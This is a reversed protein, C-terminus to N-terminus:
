KKFGFICLFNFKSVVEAKHIDIVLGYHRVLSTLEPFFRVHSEHSHPNERPVSILIRTGSPILELVRFDDVVHEMVQFLCVTDFSNVIQWIQEAQMVTFDGIPFRRQAETIAVDSIDIGKYIAGTGKLTEYFHGLGCGVDLVSKGVMPVAWEHIHGWDSRIEHYSSTNDSLVRKWIENNDM